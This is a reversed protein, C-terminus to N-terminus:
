GGKKKPPPAVVGLRLGYNILFNSFNPRTESDSVHKKLTIFWYNILMVKKVWQGGGQVPFELHLETMLPTPIRIQNIPPEVQWFWVRPGGRWGGRIGKKKM